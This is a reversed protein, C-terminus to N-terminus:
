EWFGEDDSAYWLLYTGLPLMSVALFIVYVDEDEEWDLIGFEEMM